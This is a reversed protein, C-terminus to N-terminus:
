SPNKFWIGTIMRQDTGQERRYSNCRWDEVTCIGSHSVEPLGLQNLIIEAILSLNGLYKGNPLAQFASAFATNKTIFAERVEGGVEFCKNCIAPGIWAICNQPASIMKAFSAEIVGTALGRWGAHIAAVETGQKNTILIPLCDATRIACLTHATRTLAVDAIAVETNTLPLIVVENGHVQKLPTYPQSDFPGDEPLHTFATVNLPANWNPLIM